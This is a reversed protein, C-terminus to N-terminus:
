CRELARVLRVRRDEDVDDPGVVRRGGVLVIEVRGSEAAREDPGPVLEVFGTCTADSSPSPRLTEQRRKWAWFGLTGAPVGSELALAKVTQGQRERRGLLRVMEERRNM